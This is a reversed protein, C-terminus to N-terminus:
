RRRREDRPQHDPRPSRGDGAANPANRSSSRSLPPAQSAALSHYATTTSRRRSCSGMADWDKADIALSLRGILEIIALRDELETAISDSTTTTM